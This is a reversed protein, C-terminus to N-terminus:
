SVLYRRMQTDDVLVNVFVALPMVYMGCELEEYWEEGVITKLM